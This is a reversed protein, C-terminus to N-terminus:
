DRRKSQIQCISVCKDMIVIIKSFRWIYTSMVVPYPTLVYHSKTILNKQSDLIDLFTMFPQFFDELILCPFNCIQKANYFGLEELKEKPSKGNMGIGDSSRNNYYVIWFQGEIMFETKTNIKEGRPCYFEEDDTKHTREVLNQKWKVGETDYVHANYKKFDNNWKKQKRKSGSYFECGMDMQIKIESQIGHSRVWNIVFELFKYGFFSSRTYSWALFRTKTKADVITWQIKPLIRSNKFKEYLHAPLAHMDAIDKTDYQLYEFAGIKDYNYLARREGSATRVRKTKFKHREYVGKIKGLTYIRALGSDRRRLTKFLRKPGYNLKEFENVIFKEEASDAELMRYNGKPKRSGHKLFGFLETIKKLNIQLHCNHLYSWIEDNPDKQRCSKIIKNITNKHCGLYKGIDKQKKNSAFYMRAIKFKTMIEGEAKCNEKYSM